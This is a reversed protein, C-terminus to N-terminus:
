VGIANRVKDGPSLSLSVTEITQVRGVDAEMMREIEDGVRKVNSPKMSSANLIIKAQPPTQKVTVDTVWVGSLGDMDDVATKAVKEVNVGAMYDPIGSFLVVYGLRRDIFPRNADRAM